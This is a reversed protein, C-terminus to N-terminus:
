KLTVKLTHKQVVYPDYPAVYAEEIEPSENGNAGPRLVFTVINKGHMHLWGDPLYFNTQPGRSSYRGLLRGNIWIQASGTSKFHLRWPIVWGHRSPVTFDGKYWTIGDPSHVANWNNVTKWGADNFGSTQWHSLKGSLSHHFRLEINLPVSIGWRFVAPKSIGGEGNQNRVYVVIVNEGKRAFRALDVTFASNSGQHFAAFKGNVFIAAGNDVGKFTIMPNHSAAEESLDLHTRFWWDQNPKAFQQRGHGVTTVAWKTDNYDPKVEPPVSRRTLRKAPSYKWTDLAKSTGSTTLSVSKLGKRQEMYQFNPWGQNEYIIKISHKGPQVPNQSIDQRGIGTLGPVPKGDVFVSHWDNFYYDVRLDGSKPTSFHGSYVTYGSAYDGQTELPALSDGAAKLQKWHPNATASTNASARVNKIRIHPTKFPSTIFSFQTLGTGKEFTTKAPKGDLYVSAVPGSGALSFSDQGPRTQLEMSISNGKSGEDLTLYSDSVLSIAGSRTRFVRARSARATTTLLFYMGNKEFLGDNNGIRHTFSGNSASISVKDGPTGYAVVLPKGNHETISSIPVNTHYLIGSGPLPLDVPLLYAARPGLAIRITVSSGEPPSFQVRADVPKDTTNWVYLFGTKGDSQLIADTGPTMSHAGNEVEHSHILHDGELRIFDGILKVARYKAWLGGPESIPATYDYSTTKDKSGWYGFNTGGYLMYYSLAKVGHAIVFDTLATIQGAGFEKVRRVTKDGYQSFWGGQLETIMPPSEPEQKEMATIGPLTSTINWGPYYNSADMIQSFIPDTNNRTEKTWCTIIPIDIKNKMAMRYLAKVYNAKVSDPVHYYNYENEIQMLIINGGHTILHRRIVPLVEDYWYNSWYTDARSDTRFGVHKGELWDPFGGINWEACIYPGPRIIVYLGERQTDDLFKVLSSFDPHGKKRETWNWPVYTEITNFGAAKIKELRDMWESPDCRFYHFSGSYIFVPKGHVIFGDHNYKIIGPHSFRVPIIDNKAPAAGFALAALMVAFIAPFLKKLHM